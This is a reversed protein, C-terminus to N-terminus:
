ITKGLGNNVVENKFEMLSSFLLEQDAYGLNGLGIKKLCFETDQENIDKYLDKITKLFNNDKKYQLYM